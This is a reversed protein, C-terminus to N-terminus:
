TEVGTRLTLIVHINHLVNDPVTSPPRTTGETAALIIQFGELRVTM